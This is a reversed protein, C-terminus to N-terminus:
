KKTRKVIKKKFEYIAHEEGSPYTEMPISDEDSSITTKIDPHYETRDIFTREHRMFNTGIRLTAMVNIDKVPFGMLLRITQPISRSVTLDKKFKNLKSETPLNGYLLLYSVEEFTSYACLDFIDYGRYILEGQAGHVYGIESECAIAGELGPGVTCDVPWDIPGTFAPKIDKEKGKHAEIKADLILNKIDKIEKSSM